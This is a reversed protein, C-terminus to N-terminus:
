KKTLIKAMEGGIGVAPVGFSLYKCVNESKKM